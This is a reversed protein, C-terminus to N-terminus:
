IFHLIVAAIIGLVADIPLIIWLHDRLFPVHCLIVNLLTFALLLVPLFLWVRISAGLLFMLFLLALFMMVLSFVIAKIFKSSFDLM